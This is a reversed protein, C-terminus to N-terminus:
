NKGFKRWIILTICTFLITVLTIFFWEEIPLGLIWLGFIYPKEFLWIQEKIAIFDWPLSFLIAGLIALKFVKLHSTFYSFNLMWLILTPIVLFILIWIPYSYAFPTFMYLAYCIIKWFAIIQKSDM